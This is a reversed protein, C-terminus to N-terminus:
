RLKGMTEELWIDCKEETNGGFDISLGEKRQVKM